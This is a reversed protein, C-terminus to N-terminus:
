GRTIEETTTLAKQLAQLDNTQWCGAALFAVLFVGLVLMIQKRM